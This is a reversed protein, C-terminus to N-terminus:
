EIYNKLKENAKKFYPSGVPAMEKVDEFKEKAEKFFSLSEDILADRYIRRARYFLDDRINGMENLAKENEPDHDLIKNYIKYATKLDRAEKMREAKRLLPKLINDLNKKSEALMKSGEQVLDEDMYDIKLFEELKKIAKYWNEKLYFTKGPQLKSVKNSREAMKRSEEAEKARIEASWSDIEAKLQPVDYNEPDLELITNFITAAVSVQKEKVAEKAKEVLDSVKKMRIRKEEEIKRKREIEELEALGKKALSRIQKANKYDKGKTTQFVSELVRITERYKGQEYLTQSLLYNGELFEKQEKTYIDKKVKEKKKKIKSAPTRAKKRKSDKTDETPLLLVLALLGVIGFIAKKRKEPDNLIKKILSKEDSKEIESEDADDDEDDDEDGFTSEVEVVEEVEIFQNQEVPMLRDEEQAILESLASLKFFTDGIQFVDGDKLDASNIRQGNLLTGNGSKNDEIKVKVNSKKILAHVNSVKKDDLVIQCKEKNRGIYFEGDGLSFKEFPAFDGQLMLEFKLFSGFPDTKESSDDNSFEDMENYTDDEEQFQNSDELSGDSYDSGSDENSQYEDYEENPQQENDELNDGSFESSDDDFNTNDEKVGEGSEEEHSNLEQINDEDTDPRQKINEKSENKNEEDLRESVKSISNPSKDDFSEVNLYFTFEGLKVSDGNKPNFQSVQNGNVILPLSKSVDEVLWIGSRFTIKLHERSIQRSDLQVYCDNSRGLFCSFESGLDLDLNKGFDVVRYIEDERHITLKV